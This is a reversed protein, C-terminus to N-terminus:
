SASANRSIIGPSSFSSEIVEFSDVLDAVTGKMTEESKLYELWGGVKGLRPSLELESVWGGDCM